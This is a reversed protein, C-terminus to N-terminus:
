VCIFYIQFFEAIGLEYSATLIVNVLTSGSELIIVANVLFLAVNEDFYAKHPHQWKLLPPESLYINSEM